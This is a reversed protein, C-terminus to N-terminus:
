GFEPQQQHALAVPRGILEGLKEGVGPGSHQQILMGLFILVPPVDPGIPTTRTEGSTRGAIERRDRPAYEADHDLSFLLLV